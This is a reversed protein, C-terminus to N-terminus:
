SMLNATKVSRRFSSKSESSMARCLSSTASLHPCENMIGVIDPHFSANRFGHRLQLMIAVSRVSQYDKGVRSFGWEKGCKLMM